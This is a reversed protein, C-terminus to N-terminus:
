RTGDVERLRAVVPAFADIDRVSYYSFGWRQRCAQLHQAIEAHTGVCLFPTSLADSVDMGIRGAIETTAHVRDDTIVVAQVLAHLEVDDWREGAERRMWEITADLRSAEWRVDHHQGDERTRGLMTPAVIDAHRVLQEGLPQSEHNSLDVGVESLVVVAEPSPRGGM